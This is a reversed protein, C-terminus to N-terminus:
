ALGVSAGHLVTDSRGNKSNVCRVSLCAFSVEEPNSQPAFAGSIIEAETTATNRMPRRSVPSSEVIFSKDADTM